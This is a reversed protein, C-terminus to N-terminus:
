ESGRFPDAPDESTKVRSPAAAVLRHGLYSGSANYLMIMLVSIVPLMIEPIKIFEHLVRDAPIFVRAFILSNTMLFGTLGPVIYFSVAFGFNIRKVFRLGRGPNFLSGSLLVLTLAASVIALILGYELWPLRKVESFYFCGSVTISLACSLSFVALVPRSINKNREVPFPKSNYFWSFVLHLEIAFASLSFFPAAMFAGATSLVPFLSFSAFIDIAMCILAYQGLKGRETKNEIEDWVAKFALLGSYRYSDLTNRMMRRMISQFNQIFLFIAASVAALISRNLLDLYIAGSIHIAAGAKDIFYTMAHLM